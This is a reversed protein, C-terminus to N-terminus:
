TFTLTFTQRDKPTSRRYAPLRELTYGAELWCYSAHPGDGRLGSLPYLRLFHISTVTFIAKASLENLIIKRLYYLSCILLVHIQIPSCIGTKQGRCLFTQAGGTFPCTGLNAKNVDLCSLAKKKM